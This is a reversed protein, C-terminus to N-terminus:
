PCIMIKAGEWDSFISPVLGPKFTSMQSGATPFSLGSSSSRLTTRAIFWTQPWGFSCFVWDWFYFYLLFFFCPFYVRRWWGELIKIITTGTKLDHILYTDLIYDNWTSLTKTKLRERLSVRGYYISDVSRKAWREKKELKENNIENKFAWLEWLHKPVM